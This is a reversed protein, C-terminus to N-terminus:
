CLALDGILMREGVFVLRTADLGGHRNKGAIIEITGKHESDDHYVEDRYLFLVLDADQEINGSERLDSLTPRRDGRGEVARNLQSLAVVPVQLEQAIRKLGASIQAIELNRNAAKSSVLQLYDVIVCGLPPLSAKELGAAASRIKHMLGALDFSCDDVLLPLASFHKIAELLRAWDEDTLEEGTKLKSVAVGSRRCLARETIEHGSMELTFLFATHNQGAVNEAIIQGFISKGMGPRGGVVILHGNHLIAPLNKDLDCFGTPIYHKEGKSRRELVDVYDSALDRALRMTKKKSQPSSSVSIVNSM